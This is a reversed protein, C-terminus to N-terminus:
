GEAIVSAMAWQDTDTLSIHWHTIGLRRATEAAGGTVALVPQGSSLSLVATDHWTMGQVLGTGLAKFTAEKAAFRSALRRISRDSLGALAAAADPSDAADTGLLLSALEESLCTRLEEPTYTKLVFRAAHERVMRGIRTVDVLDIGHGRIVASPRSGPPISDPATV